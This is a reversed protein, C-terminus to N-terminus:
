YMIYSSTTPLCASNNYKGLLVFGSVFTEMKFERQPDDVLSKAKDNYNTTKGDESHKIISTTSFTKKKVFYNFKSCKGFILYMIIAGAQVFSLILLIQKVKYNKNFIWTFINGIFVSLVSTM